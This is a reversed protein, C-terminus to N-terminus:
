SGMSYYDCAVIANIYGKNMYDLQSPIGDCAVIKVSGPAFPFLNDNLFLTSNIIVWVDVHHESNFKLFKEKADQPTGDTYVIGDKALAIYVYYEENIKDLIGQIRQKDAVNNVDNALIAVYGSAYTEIITEVGLQKGYEYNNPGFYSYRLSNPMDSEITFIKVGELIGKMLSIELSKSNIPNIMIGAIFNSKADEIKDAVIQDYETKNQSEPFITKININYKEAIPNERAAKKCGNVLAEFMQNNQNPQLICYTLNGKNDEDTCSFFMISLIILWLIHKM